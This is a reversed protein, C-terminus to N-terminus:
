RPKTGLVEVKVRTLGSRIFGLTQAATRTLDVLRRTKTHLRDNTKVVVSKGNRLNTVRIWTGLPLSNCAATLKSHRFIEGNATKRGEFKQAYYSAQGYLIRNAKSKQSPTNNSKKAQAIGPKTSILICLFSLVLLIFGKKM